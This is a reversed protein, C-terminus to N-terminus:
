RIVKGVRGWRISKLKEEFSDVPVDPDWSWYVMLAEGVLNKEPVFGWSRSDMSNDRNDGMVFYYDEQVVYEAQPKGNILIEGNERLQLDQGERQLVARWQDVNKSDLVIRRGEEPVLAPGYSDGAGRSRVERGPFILEKGNVSVRGKRIEVMDGPLAVCRKVFYVPDSLEPLDRDGPYEFVVVDGREVSGFFPLTFSPIALNTFPFYRPTRLGYAIKNVLLFDGVLLTNEMSATPIRYAEVVFTKLLLAVVITLFITRVHGAIKRSFAGSAHTAPISTAGTDSKAIEQAM